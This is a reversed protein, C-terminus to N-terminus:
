TKDPYLFNREKHQERAACVGDLESSLLLDFRETRLERILAVLEGLLADLESSQAGLDRLQGLLQLIGSVSDWNTAM